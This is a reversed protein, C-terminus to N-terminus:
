RYTFRGLSILRDKIIRCLEVKPLSRTQRYAFIFRKEDETGTILQVKNSTLDHDIIELPTVLDPRVGFDLRLSYLVAPFTKKAEFSGCKLGRYKSRGDGRSNPNNRRIWYEDTDRDEILAIGYCGTEMMQAERALIAEQVKAGYVEIEIWNADRWKLPTNSLELIRIRKPAESEVVESYKVLKAGVRGMMTHIMILPPPVILPPLPPLPRSNARGQESLIKAGIEAAAVEMQYLRPNYRMLVDNQGETVVGGSKWNIVSQELLPVTTDLSLEDLQQALEEVPLPPLNQLMENRLQALTLNETGVLRNLRWLPLSLPPSDGPPKGDAISTVEATPSWTMWGNQIVVFGPVGYRNIVEPLETSWKSLELLVVRPPIAPIHDLVEDLTWCSRGKLMEMAVAVIEGRYESSYYQLMGGEDLPHKPGASDPRYTCKQFDCEPTGDKGRLRQPQNRDIELFYDVAEEKMWREVTKIRRGKKEAQIGLLVDVSYVQSYGDSLPMAVVRYIEVEIRANPDGTTVRKEALLRAQSTARLIRGVLQEDAAQNWSTNVV